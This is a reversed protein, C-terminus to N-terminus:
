SACVNSNFNFSCGRFVLFHIADTFSFPTFNVVGGVDQEVSGAKASGEKVMGMCIGNMNNISARGFMNSVSISVRCGWKLEAVTAFWTEGVDAYTAAWNGEFAVIRGKAVLKVGVLLLESMCGM